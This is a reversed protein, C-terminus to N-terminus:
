PLKAARIRKLTEAIDTALAEDLQRATSLCYDWDLERGHVAILGNIDGLDKDRSAILKMVIIDEPTAVNMTVKGIKQLISREVIQKEFGSEGIALDVKIGTDTNELPLILSVRIIREVDDFPPRYGDEILESLLQIASPVDSDVILDVDQTVRLYGLITTAVGGVVAFRRNRKRLKDTIDLLTRKLRTDM